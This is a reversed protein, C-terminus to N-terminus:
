ASGRPVQERPRVLMPISALLDDESDLVIAEANPMAEALRRAVSAPHLPDGERAIVLAPARVDALARRDLAGRLRARGRPDRARRRGPEHGAVAAPRVRPARAADEYNRARGSEELIAEIAEDRPLTELLEATREFLPTSGISGELSSPLLFVVREFRDPAERSCIPSRAPGSRRASRVRRAPRRAVADLDRAFDDYSYAGAEPTSSHGHGRFCFRVKTGPAFPTFAALEM